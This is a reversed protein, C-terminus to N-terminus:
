TIRPSRGATAALQKEFDIARERHRSKMREANRRGNKAKERFRRTQIDLFEKPSRYRGSADGNCPFRKDCLGLNQKIRSAAGAQMELYRCGRRRRHLAKCKTRLSKLRKKEEPSKKM